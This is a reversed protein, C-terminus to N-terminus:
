EACAEADTAEDVFRVGYEELEKLVPEYVEPATPISLGPPFHGGDGTILLKAVIGLPLGVLKAMATDVSNEGKMMLTSVLKRRRGGEEYDLRHQMLVMDRDDTKLAWKELLLSELIRAATAHPLPLCKDSFLGLWELKMIVESEPPVGLTAAVQERLSGAQRSDTFARTLDSYTSSKPFDLAQETDTLGLQVLGNWADCFGIHRITGRFLTEVDDLGYAKQYKLSDRNAYVEWDGMEPISIKDYERFLRHYPIFKLRGDELYRATGKGANVVNWPNWSFKYHWPGDSSEPAILGGTSSSFRRILGGQAKIRHIRLMASMHDIGPDLGLENMFVLSHRYAEDHLSAIAESIYSATLLHRRLALCDKAIEFHLDPPLMCVVVDHGALLSRRQVPDEAEFSVARGQPHGRVKQVALDANADAVTVEFQGEAAKSLVYDILATASRGAGIVLLKKM